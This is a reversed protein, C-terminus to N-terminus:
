NKTKKILFESTNTIVNQKEIAIIKLKIKIKSELMKIKSSTIM